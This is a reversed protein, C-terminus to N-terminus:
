YHLQRRNGCQQHGPHRPPQYNDTYDSDLFFFLFFMGDWTGTIEWKGRQQWRRGGATGGDDITTAIHLFFVWFLPCSNDNSYVYILLILHSSFTSFFKGIGTAAERKPIQGRQPRGQQGTTQWYYLSRFNENTFHFIILFLFCVKSGLSEVDRLGKKKAPPSTAVATAKITILFGGGGRSLPGDDDNDNDPLPHHMMTTHQQFPPPPWTSSYPRHRRFRLGLSMLDRPGKKPRHHPSAAIATPTTM